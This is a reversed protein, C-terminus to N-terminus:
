TAIDSVDVQESSWSDMSLSKVKSIHTGMKRHLAACRMCLFIGLNWSAWGPNMAHCDACRDNGPVSRILDQLARENRSQQRKSIGAVM